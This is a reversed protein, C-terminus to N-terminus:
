VRQRTGLSRYMPLSGPSSAISETENGSGRLAQSHPKLFEKVEREKDEMKREKKREGGREEGRRGEGGREEM